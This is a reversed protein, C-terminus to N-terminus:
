YVEIKLDRDSHHHRWNWYAQQDHYNLTTFERYHRHHGEWYMRYARGERDNWHHDDRYHKDHYVVVGHDEARLATPAVALSTVLAAGLVAANLFRTM